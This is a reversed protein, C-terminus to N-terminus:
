IVDTGADKVGWFVVFIFKKELSIYQMEGQFTSFMVFMIYNWITAYTSSFTNSKFFGPIASKIKGKAILSAEFIRHLLTGLFMVQNPGETKFYKDLISRRL